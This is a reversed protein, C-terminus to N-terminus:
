LSVAVERLKLCLWLAVVYHIWVNMEDQMWVTTGGEGSCWASLSKWLGWWGAHSSPLPIAIKDLHAPPFVVGLIPSARCVGTPSVSSSNQRETGLQATSDPALVLDSVFILSVDLIEFHFRFTQRGSSRSERGQVWLHGMTCDRRQM